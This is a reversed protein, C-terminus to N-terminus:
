RRFRKQTKRPIYRDFWFPNETAIVSWTSPRKKWADCITAMAWGVLRVVSSNTDMPRGLFLCYSANSHLRFYRCTHCSKDQHRLNVELQRTALGKDKRM